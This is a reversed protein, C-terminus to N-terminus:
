DTSKSLSSTDHEEYLELLKSVVECFSKYNKQKQIQKLQNFVELSVRIKPYRQESKKFEDDLIKPKKNDTVEKDRKTPSIPHIEINELFERTLLLQNNNQVLENPKNILPYDVFPHRPYAMM